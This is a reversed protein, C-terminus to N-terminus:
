TGARAAKEIIPKLADALGGPEPIEVTGYCEELDKISKRMKERAKGIGDILPLLSVPKASAALGTTAPPGGNNTQNPRGLESELRRVLLFSIAVDYVRLAVMPTITVDNAHLTEEISRVFRGYFNREQDTMWPEVRNITDTMRTQM